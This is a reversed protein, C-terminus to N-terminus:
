ALGKIRSKLLEILSEWAIGEVVNTDRIGWNNEFDKITSSAENNNSVYFNIPGNDNSLAYNLKVIRLDKIGNLMIKDPEVAYCKAKYRDSIESSFKGENAGLDLVISDKNINSCYIWHGSVIKFGAVNLVKQVFSKRLMLIKLTGRM